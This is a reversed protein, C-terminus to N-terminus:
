RLNEVVFPFIARADPRVETADRPFCMSPVVCSFNYSDFGQMGQQALIDLMVNWNQDLAVNCEEVTEFLKASFGGAMAYGQPGGKNVLATSLVVCDQALVQPSLALLIASIAVRM